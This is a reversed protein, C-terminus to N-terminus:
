HDPSDPTPRQLLRAPVVPLRAATQDVIAVVLRREAVPLYPLLVWASTLAFVCAMFFDSTM